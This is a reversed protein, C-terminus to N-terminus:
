GLVFVAVGARWVRERGFVDGARGAPLLLATSMLLFSSMTWQVAQVSAALRAQLIPLAMQVAAGDFTAMFTAAAVCLLTATPRKM